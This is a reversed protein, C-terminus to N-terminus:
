FLGTIKGDDTIDMKTGAPVSPLGPMTRMEGCLPYLFGAGISARIDKIPLTFGKPAGKLDPDHSLSLHTKAMCIPLKGYGAETFRDIKDLATQSYSVDKAGYIKTAITEIKEKIPMELPYLFRFDSREDAAKVVASALDKGGEGGKEWLDSVCVDYAGSERAIKKVAEIESKKDHAFRNIAVVVPVGFLRINELHKKMNSCGEIVADVDEAPPDRRYRLVRVRNLEPPTTEGTVPNPPPAPVPVIWEDVRVGAPPEGSCLEPQADHLTPTCDATPAADELPAADVGADPSPVGEGCAGLGLTALSVSVLAVSRPLM